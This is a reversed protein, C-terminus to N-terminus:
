PSANGLTPDGPGKCARHHLSPFPMFTSLHIWGHAPLFSGRLSRARPSRHQTGVAALTGQTGNRARVRIELQIGPMAGCAVCTELASAHKLLWIGVLDTHM